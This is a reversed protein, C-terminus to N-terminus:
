KQLGKRRQIGQRLPSNRFLHLAYEWISSCRVFTTDQRVMVQNFGGGLGARDFGASPSSRAAGQRQGRSSTSDIAQGLVEAAGQALKLLASHSKVGSQHQQYRAYYFEYRRFYACPCCDFCIGVKHFPLVFACFLVHM